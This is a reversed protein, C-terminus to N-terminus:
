PFSSRSHPTRYGRYGNSLLKMSMPVNGFIAVFQERQFTQFFHVFARRKGNTLATLSEGFMKEFVYLLLFLILLLQSSLFALIFPFTFLQTFYTAFYTSQLFRLVNHFFSIVFICKFSCSISRGSLGKASPVRHYDSAFSKVHCYKDPNELIHDLWKM